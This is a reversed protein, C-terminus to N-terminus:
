AVGIGLGAFNGEPYVRNVYVAKPKKVVASSDVSNEYRVWMYEHGKKEIGTIDGVTIAPATAGSGANPSAIFRYSLSWPGDGRDSDWEQQGTCGIFLVEGKAFTRFAASNTTGTLGAVSKIYAATVYSHPVDYTETWQLAPVVIDVGAVRDDDVAIAGYQNPAAPTGNWYRQEGQAFDATVLGQTIHQTGGTTDFSRSRKFPDPREDNDAGAKQYNLTVQWAKDGLYSVSYSDIALKEDGGGPYQWYFGWNAIYSRIENHLALDDDTGFVKFSKTYTATGRSGLRVITAARSAKDEVWTLAM